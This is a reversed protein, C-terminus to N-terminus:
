LIVSIPLSRQLNDTSLGRSLVSQEPSHGLPNKKGNLMKKLKKESFTKRHNKKKRVTCILMICGVGLGGLFCVQPILMVRQYGTSM